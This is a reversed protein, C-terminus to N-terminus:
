REFITPKHSLSLTLFKLSNSSSALEQFKGFGVSCVTLCNENNFSPNGKKATLSIILSRHSRIVLFMKRADFVTGTKWPLHPKPCLGM